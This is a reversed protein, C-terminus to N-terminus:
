VFLSSLAMPIQADGAIKIKGNMLLEFPNQTGTQLGWFAEAECSIECEPRALNPETSGPTVYVRHSVNGDLVAFSVSGAVARIQAVREGDLTLARFALMQKDPSLSLSALRETGRVVIPEFSPEPITIRVVLDSALGPECCLKGEQLRFSWRGVEPVAFAVSGRSSVREFGPLDSFRQPIYSTFFPEPSAPISM